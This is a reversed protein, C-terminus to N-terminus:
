KEGKRRRKEEEQRFEFLHTQVFIMREQKKQRNIKEWRGGSGKM